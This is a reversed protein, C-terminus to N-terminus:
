AWIASGLPAALFLGSPRTQHSLRFKQRPLRMETPATRLHSKPAGPGRSSQPPAGRKRLLGGFYPGTSAAEVVLLRVRKGRLSRQDLESPGPM